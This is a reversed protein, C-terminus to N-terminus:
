NCHLTFALRGGEWAPDTQPLAIRAPQGLGGVIIESHSGTFAHNTESAANGFVITDEVSSSEQAVIASALFLVAALVM